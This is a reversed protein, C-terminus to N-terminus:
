LKRKLANFESVVRGVVREYSWAANLFKIPSDFKMVSRFFSLSLPSLLKFEHKQFRIVCWLVNRMWSPDWNHLSTM